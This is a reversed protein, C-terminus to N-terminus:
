LGLKALKEKTPIGEESWGRHAYYENLMLGLFPLNGMTGGELKHTLIRPPLTDDKRSIGRRVNIMRRLNFIREGTIMFEDFSMDWGTISNLLEVIYTPPIKYVLFSCIVVSNI